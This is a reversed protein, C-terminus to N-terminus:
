EEVKNASSDKIEAGVSETRGNILDNISIDDKIYQTVKVPVNKETDIIQYTATQQEGTIKKQTLKIEYQPLKPRTYRVLLAYNDPLRKGGNAKFMVNQSMYMEDIDDYVVNSVELNGNIELPVILLYDNSREDLELYEVGGLQALKLMDSSVLTSFDVDEYTRIALLREMTKNPREIGLTEILSNPTHMDVPVPEVPDPTVMIVVGLCLAVVALVGILVIIITKNM